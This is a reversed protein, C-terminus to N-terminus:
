DLGDSNAQNQIVDANLIGNQEEAEKNDDEEENDVKFDSGDTYKNKNLREKL